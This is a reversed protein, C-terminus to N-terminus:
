NGCSIWTGPGDHGPCLSCLQAYRHNCFGNKRRRATAVRTSDDSDPPNTTNLVGNLSLDGSVILNNDITTEGYATFTDGVVTVPLVVTGTFTPSEKDAKLGVSSLLTTTFSADVQSLAVKLQNIADFASPIANVFSVIETRVFATTAIQTSTTGISATPALPIGSFQPSNLTAYNQNKVFATTAAKTSNDSTIQTPVNVDGLLNTQGAVYLNGNLSADSTALIKGTTQIDGTFNAGALQAYGQNKVFATTAVKQSSDGTNQTPAILSGAINLNGNLSVDRGIFVNSNLSADGSVLLRQTINATPINATGTFSPSETTAYGQNKVFATTAVKTSNDSSSQTQVTINGIVSANGNVTVENISATPINVTGTFSPSAVTAYGQNKVFATTAVKTSNDSSNQTAAILSGGVSLNGNM